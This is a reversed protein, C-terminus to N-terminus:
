NLVQIYNASVTSFYADVDGGALAWAGIEHTKKEYMAADEESLELNKKYLERLALRWQDSPSIPVIINFKTDPSHRDKFRKYSELDEPMCDNFSLWFSKFDPNKKDIRAINFEFYKQSAGGVAYLLPNDREGVIRNLTVPGIIAFALPTGQKRKEKDPIFRPNLSGPLYRRIEDETPVVLPELPIPDRKPEAHGIYGRAEGDPGPIIASRNIFVTTAVFGGILGLAERRGIERRNISTGGTNLHNHFIDCLYDIHM